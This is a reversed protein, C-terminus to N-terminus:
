STVQFVYLNPVHIGILGEFVQPLQHTEQILVGDLPTSFLTTVEIEANGTDEEGLLVHAGIARTEVALM